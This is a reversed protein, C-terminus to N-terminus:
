AITHCKCFVDTCYPTTSSQKSYKDQCKPCCGKERTETSNPFTSDHLCTGAVKCTPYECGKEEHPHLSDRLEGTMIVAEKGVEGDRAELEKRFNLVAETYLMLAQSRKNAIKAPTEEYMKPFYEDLVEELKRKYAEVISQITKM